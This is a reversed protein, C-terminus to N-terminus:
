RSGVAAASAMWATALWPRQGRGLVRAHTVGPIRRAHRVCSENPPQHAPCPGAPSRDSAADPGGPPRGTVARQGALSRGGLPVPVVLQAPTLAIVTVGRPSPWWPM